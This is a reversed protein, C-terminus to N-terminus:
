FLVAAWCLFGLLAVVELMIDKDDMPDKPLLLIELEEELSAIRRSLETIEDRALAMM